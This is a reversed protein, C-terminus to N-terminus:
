DDRPRVAVTRDARVTVRCGEFAVSLRGDNSARGFIANLADTDLVTGLPKMARPDGGTVAAIARVVADTVTEDDGVDTSFQDNRGAGELRGDGRDISKKAM